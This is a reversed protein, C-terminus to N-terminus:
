AYRGGTAQVSEVIQDSASRMSKLAKTRSLARFDRTFSLQGTGDPDM